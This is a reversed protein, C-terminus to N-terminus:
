GTNSVIAVGLATCAGAAVIAGVALGLLLGAGAQRTRRGLLLGIGILGPLGFIVFMPVPSGGFAPTGAVVMAAFVQLVVAAVVGLVIGGIV